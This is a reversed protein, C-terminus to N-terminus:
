SVASTKRSRSAPEAQIFQSASAAEGDFYIDFWVELGLDGIQRLQAPDLTPGGHGWASDWRCCIDVLYGRALFEQLPAGKGALHELLWGLHDRLDRSDVQGASELFWGSHTYRKDLKASKLDGVKICKSYGVGLNATVEALDLAEDIVRLWAHTDSCSAYNADCEM